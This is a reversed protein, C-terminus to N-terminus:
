WPNASFTLVSNDYKLRMLGHPRSGSAIVDISRSLPSFTGKSSTFSATPASNEETDPRAKAGRLRSLRVSGPFMLYLLPDRPGLHGLFGRWLHGVYGEEGVLAEVRLELCRQLPELR